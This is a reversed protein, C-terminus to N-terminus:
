WGGSHSAPSFVRGLPTQIQNSHRAQARDRSASRLLDSLKMEFLNEDEVM